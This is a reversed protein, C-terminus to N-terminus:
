RRRYCFSQLDLLRVAEQVESPQLAKKRGGVSWVEVGRRLGGGSKLMNKMKSGMLKM